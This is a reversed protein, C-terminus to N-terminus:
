DTKKNKKEQDGYIKKVRQPFLPDAIKELRVENYKKLKHNRLNKENDTFLKDRYYRPLPLKKNGLMIIPKDVNEHYFKVMKKTLFQLGIGKSMLAKELSAGDDNKRVKGARKLAYKLTYYISEDKLQGFYVEGHQWSKAIADKSTCNFMIVHYHPRGRITGYEGVCFYKIHKDDTERRLKKMFNQFHKYNLTILGDETIPLNEDAYTLTLWEAATCNDYENKLRVFWSNVRLKRCEICNGCPVQQMHYTDYTTLEEKKLQLPTICM